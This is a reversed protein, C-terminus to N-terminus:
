LFICQLLSTYLESSVLIVPFMLETFFTCNDWYMAHIRLWSAPTYSRENKVETSSAPLCDAEHVPRKVGGLPFFALVRQSLPQTSGLALRSMKSSLPIEEGAPNRVRSRGAWVWLVIGIM